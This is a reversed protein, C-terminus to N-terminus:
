CPVVRPTFVSGCKTPETMFHLQDTMLHIEDTMVHHWNQNLQVKYIYLGPDDGYRQNIYDRFIWKAPQTSNLVWAYGLGKMVYAVSTGKGPSSVLCWKPDITWGSLGFPPNGQTGTSLKQM